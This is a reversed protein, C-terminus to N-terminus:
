PLSSVCSLICAIRKQLYKVCFYSDKVSLTICTNEVHYLIAKMAKISNTPRYSPCRAQLFSLPSISARNDTLPLICLQMHGLQHWQWESDQELLDLNTKGKQYRSVLTTGFLTWPATSHDYYRLLQLKVYHLLICWLHIFHLTGPWSTSWIFSPTITSFFQWASLNFLSSAMSQPLHLFHTLSSQHGHHTHTPSHKKESLIWVATFHNHTHASPIFSFGHVVSFHSLM